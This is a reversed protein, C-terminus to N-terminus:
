LKCTSNVKIVIDPRNASIHRDTHVVRDWLVTHTEINTVTDPQHEYCNDSTRIGLDDCIKWHLYAAAKNHRDIYEALINYEM